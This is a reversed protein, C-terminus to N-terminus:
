AADKTAGPFYEEILRDCAHRVTESLFREGRRDRIIELMKKREVPYKASLVELAQGERRDVTATDDM